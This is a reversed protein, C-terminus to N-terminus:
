LKKLRVFVLGKEYHNESLGLPKLPLGVRREFRGFPIELVRVEGHICCELPPRRGSIILDSGELRLEVQDEAIGPLACVVWVSDETEVINVPPVWSANQGFSRQLLNRHVREAHEFLDRARQWMWIELPDLPM